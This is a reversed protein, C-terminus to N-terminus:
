SNKWTLLFNNSHSLPEEEFIEVKEKLNVLEERSYFDSNDM